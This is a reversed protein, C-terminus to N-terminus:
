SNDEQRRNISIGSDLISNFALTNSNSYNYMKEPDESNHVDTKCNNEALLAYKWLLM